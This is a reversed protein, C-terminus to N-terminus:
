EAAGLSRGAPVERASPRPSVLQLVHASSSWPKHSRGTGPILGTDGASVPLNKDVVGGPFDLYIMNQLLHLM